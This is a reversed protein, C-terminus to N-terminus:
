RREPTGDAARGRRVGHLGGDRDPLLGVPVVNPSAFTEEVDSTAPVLALVLPLAAALALLRTRM